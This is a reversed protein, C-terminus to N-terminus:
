NAVSPGKETPTLLIPSEPSFIPVSRTEFSPAPGGAVHRKTELWFDDVDTFDVDRTVAYQKRFCM